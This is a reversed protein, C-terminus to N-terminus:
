STPHPLGIATLLDGVTEMGAFAEFDFERDLQDELEVIVSALTLSDLGVEVLVLARTEPGDDMPRGRYSALLSLVTQIQATATQATTM